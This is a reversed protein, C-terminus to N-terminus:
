ADFYQDFFGLGGKQGTVLSKRGRRRKIREVDKELTEQKTEQKAEEIRKAERKRQEEASERARASEEQIKELSARQQDLALGEKELIRQQALSAQKAAKSQERISAYTAGMYLLSPAAKLISGFFNGWSSKSSHGRRHAM